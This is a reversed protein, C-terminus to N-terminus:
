ANTATKVKGRRSPGKLNITYARHVIRDLIADAVTPDGIHDHWKDPPLQSTVLTSRAADRDELVELLDLRHVQSLPALGWDDLIILDARAFKSLLRVLTGDARALTLENCLRPVRRYLVRYGNRCAQNGLACAVYTKGVGTAGTIVVNLRETLWRCTALQRATARVIGRRKSCDLDEICANSDRLKAQTLLRKLKRNHRALHEADVLFGFREEFSLKAMEPDNSQETWTDAMALLRMARLKELTPEILM